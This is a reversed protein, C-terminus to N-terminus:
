GTLREWANGPQDQALLYKSPSDYVHFHCIKTLILLRTAKKAFVCSLGRMRTPKVELIYM